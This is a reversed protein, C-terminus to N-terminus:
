FPIDDWEDYWDSEVELPEPFDDDNPHLKGEEDYWWWAFDAGFFFEMQLPPIRPMSELKQQLFDPFSKVRVDAIGYKSLWKM